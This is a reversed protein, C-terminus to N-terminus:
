SQRRSSGAISQHQLLIPARAGTINRKMVAHVRAARHDCFFNCLCHSCSQKECTDEVSLKVGQKHATMIYIPQTAVEKASPTSAVTIPLLEFLIVSMFASKLGYEVFFAHCHVLRFGITAFRQCCLQHAKTSLYEGLEPTIRPFSASLKCLETSSEGSHNGHHPHKRFTGLVPGDSARPCRNKEVTGYLWSTKGVTELTLGLNGLHQSVLRCIASINGINLWHQFMRAPM